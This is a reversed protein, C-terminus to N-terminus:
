TSASSCGQPPVKLLNNKREDNIEYKKSCEPDMYLNYIAIWVQAETKPLRGYEQKPVVGWKSNEYVEREAKENVRLWPKEEILPVLLSYLNCEVLLHHVIGIELHKIYDTVYRLISISMVFLNFEIDEVQKGLEEGPSRRLIAQVKEEKKQEETLKSRQATEERRSKRTSISRSVQKSIKKYCYDIVEVLFDGSEDVATRHFMLVELINCVVSEHYIALYTKMSNLREAQGGLQPLVKEKWIATLILDYILVKFKDAAICEELIYEDNKMLANVHLQM